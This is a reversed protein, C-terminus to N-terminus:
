EANAKWILLAGGVILEGGTEGQRLRSKAVKSIYAPSTMRNEKRRKERDVQIDVFTERHIRSERLWVIM